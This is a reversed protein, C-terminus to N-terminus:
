IGEGWEMRISISDRSKKAKKAQKCREGGKVKKRSKARFELAKKEGGDRKKRM